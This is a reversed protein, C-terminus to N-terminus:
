HCQYDYIHLHIHHKHAYRNAPFEQDFQSSFVAYRLSIYIYVPVHIYLIIVIIMLRGKGILCVKDQM